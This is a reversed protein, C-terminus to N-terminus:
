LIHLGTHTHTHTHTPTPTHTPTNKQTHTPPHPPTYTHTDRQTHTPTHTHTHTHTYVTNRISSFIAYIEPNKEDKTRLVFVDETISHFVTPTLHLRFSKFVKYM